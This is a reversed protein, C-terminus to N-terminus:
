RVSSSDAAASAADAMPATAAATAPQPHYGSIFRRMGNEFWHMGTGNAEALAKRNDWNERSIRYAAVVTGTRDCGAKCHVFVAGPGDLVGLPERLQEATPTAFGNMPFNVYSMGAAVVALSEATTSHEGRQRLDLVTHVGLKALAPWAGNEPQGGRYIRESVQHFNPIGAVLPTASVLAPVAFLSAALLPLLTRRRM